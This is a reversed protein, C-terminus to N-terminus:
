PRSQFRLSLGIFCCIASAILMGLHFANLSAEPFARTLFIAAAGLLVTGFDAILPGVVGASNDQWTRFRERM